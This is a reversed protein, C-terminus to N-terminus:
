CWQFLPSAILLALVGWAKIRAMEGSLAVGQATGNEVYATLQARDDPRLQLGPLTYAAVADVLDASTGEYNVREALAAVRFNDIWGEAAFTLALATNWRGLLGNTNIWARAPEPYGNPPAWGYPVQGMESLPNYLLWYDDIQTPRAVRLAAILFDFPRRFKQGAAAAFEPSGFIHRLMAKIDGDTATFVAATSEVLSAPPSDSVFRAALKRAIFRATAPHTAVIDLVQLGDELGRGAALAQGLVTKPGDDHVDGNFVFRHHTGGIVTWGTLARAVEKVDTETYGGDVGLTHLEMLERAFNENPHEKESSDQNLYYLMAPSQAVAFLLDRFKGLAHPRIVDRDYVLRAAPDDGMPVNFHDSWFEVLREYLGRETYLAHLIRRHYILGIMQGYDPAQFRALDAYGAKLISFKEYFADLAPDPISDPDLQWELYGAAGRETIAAVDEPRIGWTLRNLLHIAPATEAAYVPKAGGWQLNPLLHAASLGLAAGGTFKLFGRRSITM